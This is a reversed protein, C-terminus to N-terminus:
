ILPYLDPLMSHCFLYAADAIDVNGDKTLDMSRSYDIPYLEPLMSHSFLLLADSIDVSGDKNVDGIIGVPLSVRGSSVASSIKQSGLKVLSSAGVSVSEAVATEKVKFEVSFLKGDFVADKNLAIIMAGKQVDATPPLASFEELHDYDCFGVFELIDTDYVFNSVAISNIPKSTKLYVDLKVTDGPKASVNGFTFVADTTKANEATGGCVVDVLSKSNMALGIAAMKGGSAQLDDIQVNVQIIDGEKFPKETPIALEVSYKGAKGSYKIGRKIENSRSAFSNEYSSFRTGIADSYFLHHNTFSKGYPVFHGKGKDGLRLEVADNLHPHAHLAVYEPDGRLFTNDVVDYFVYVYNDDYLMYVDGTATTDTAGNWLFYKSAPGHLKVMYSDKYVEDFEGDVIPTGKLVKDNIVTACDKNYMASILQNDEASDTGCYVDVLDKSSPAFGIAAMKGNASQLDDIQLNIQMIDGFKFPKDTPISLEICYKGATSSYTITGICENLRAFSNEYSSFRYGFGDVYFLHHDTFTKGFLGFHGQGYDGLRIEVADNVHPHADSMLYDRDTTMYTTDKVEFCVYVNKDDYLMYVTGKATTNKAGNQIYYAGAPGHLKVKFSDAYIDDVKGDVKPTGKLIVENVVTATATNYNEVSAAATLAFLMLLLLTIVTKKM